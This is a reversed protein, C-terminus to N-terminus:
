AKCKMKLSEIFAPIDTTFFNGLDVARYAEDVQQKDAEGLAEEAMPYLINDEKYIHQQLLYCYGRANELLNRKDGEKLAAEMGKVYNRGEDHEMLMVPIPNCHMGGQNQLLAKFLVDEEKVHHFGDAYKKIFNLVDEFFVKVPEKGDEIENCENLVIDIVKLINQHEESLVSTINKM